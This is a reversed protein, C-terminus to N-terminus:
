ARRGWPWWQRRPAAPAAPLDAVTASRARQDTLLATLKAQTEALQAQATAREAAERDRQRRLDDIQDRADALRAELGAVRAHEAALEAVMEVHQSKHRSVAPADTATNRDGTVPYIRELEAPDILRAGDPGVTYSLRGDKMARHITSRPKGTLRAAESLGVSAM